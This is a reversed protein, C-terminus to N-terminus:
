HFSHSSKQGENASPLGEMGEPLVMNYNGQIPPGWYLDWFVITRM